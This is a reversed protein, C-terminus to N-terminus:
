FDGGMVKQPKSCHSFAEEDSKPAIFFYFLFIGEERMLKNNGYNHHITLIDLKLIHTGKVIVSHKIL